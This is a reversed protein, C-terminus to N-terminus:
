NYPQARIQRTAAVDELSVSIMLEDGSQILRGTLIAKVGMDHGWKQPDTPQGKYRFGTNRSMVSLNPLHSLSNILSDTIGDSLYETKPDNSLNAFPLVAISDIHAQGAGDFLRDRLGAVNLGFFLLLVGLVGAWVFHPWNRRLKQRTAEGSSFPMARAPDKDRKLGQLDAGM